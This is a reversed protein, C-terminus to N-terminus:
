DHKMSKSEWRTVRNRGQYKSQYLAMDAREILTLNCEVDVSFSAVGFSCTVTISEFQSSEIDQRMQEAIQEAEEESSDPLLICFEEGGFRAVTDAESANNMLVKAVGQLVKDGSTHGYTDNITKFSDIDALLVSYQIPTKSQEFSENFRQYLIRRNYCNTLPDRSALYDLERNIARTNKYRYLIYFILIVFVSLTTILLFISFRKKKIELETIKQSQLMLAIQTQQQDLKLASLEADERLADLETELKYSALIVQNKTFDFAEREKQIIQSLQYKEESYLLSKTLNGKIKEAEKLWHYTMLINEKDDVESSLLLAQELFSIAKEVDKELVAKGLYNLSQVQFEAQKYEIALALSQKFYGTAIAAKEQKLYNTGLLFHIRITKSYSNMSQYLQLATTLMNISKALDNQYYHIVGLERFAAARTEPKVKDIPLAITQSYFSKANNLQDLKTYILGIQNDVEALHRLDNEQEYIHKAQQIYDLSKEYHGINRYIIGSALAVQAYRSTSPSISSLINLSRRAHDLARIYNRQKNEAMAINKLAIAVALADERGQQIVLSKQYNAISEPIDKLHKYCQAIEHYIVALQKKSDDDNGTILPIVKEFQVVANNFKKQKYNLKGATTYIDVLVSTNKSSFDDTLLQNIIVEAAHYDKKSILSKVKSLANNIQESLPVTAESSLETENSKAQINSAIMTLALAVILISLIMRNTNINTNIDFMYSYRFYLSRLM